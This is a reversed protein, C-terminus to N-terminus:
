KTQSWAQNLWVWSLDGCSLHSWNGLVWDPYPTLIHCCSELGPRRSGLFDMDQAMFCVM